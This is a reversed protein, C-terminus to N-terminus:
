IKKEVYLTQTPFAFDIKQKEFNRYTDYRKTFSGFEKDDSLLAHSYLSDLKKYEKLESENSKQVNYGFLEFLYYSNMLLENLHDDPSNTTNESTM